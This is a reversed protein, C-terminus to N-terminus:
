RWCRRPERPESEPYPLTLTPYRSVRSVRPRSEERAAGAGGEGCCGLVAGAPGYAMLLTAAVYKSPTESIAATVVARRACRALSLTLAREGFGMARNARQYEGKRPSRRAASKREGVRPVYLSFHVRPYKLAEKCGIRRM